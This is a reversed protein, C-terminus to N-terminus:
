KEIVHALIVLLFLKVVGFHYDLMNPTENFLLAEVLEGLIVVVMIVLYIILAKGINM